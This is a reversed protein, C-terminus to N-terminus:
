DDKNEKMLEKIKELSANIRELRGKFDDKIPEEWMRGVTGVPTEEQEKKTPFKLLKGM